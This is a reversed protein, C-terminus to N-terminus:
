TRLSSTDTLCQKRLANIGKVVTNTEATATTKSEFGMAPFRWLAFLIFVTTSHQYLIKLLVHLNSCHDLSHLVKQFKEQFTVFYFLFYATFIYNAIQRSSIIIHNTVVIINQRTSFQSSQFRGQCHSCILKVDVWSHMDIIGITTRDFLDNARCYCGLDACVYM